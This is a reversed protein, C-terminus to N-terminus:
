GRWGDRSKITFILENLNYFPYSVIFNVYLRGSMGSKDEKEWVLMIHEGGAELINARAFLQDASFESKWMKAGPVNKAEVHISHGQFVLLFDWDSAFKRDPDDRDCYLYYPGGMNKEIFSFLQNNKQRETM